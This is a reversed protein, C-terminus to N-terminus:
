KSWKDNNYSSVVLESHKNTWPNTDTNTSEHHSLKNSYSIDKDTMTPKIGFCNVGYKITSDSIYGGNIGPRGCNNKSGESKQLTDWTSKQTPFLAFQNDSWGYNCWEAGNKYANEMETYTALRSDYIKCISQADEYTYKNDSINFVEEKVISSPPPPDSPLPDPLEKGFKWGSILSNFIDAIWDYVIDVINIGFGIKLINILLLLIFFYWSKLELLHISVPLEGNIKPIKFFFIVLYIVFLYMMMYVLSIPSNFENKTQRCMFIFPHKKDEPTMEFLFYMIYLVFIALIFVNITMIVMNERSDFWSSFFIHLVAYILIYIIVLISIYYSSTKSFISTLNFTIISDNNTSM